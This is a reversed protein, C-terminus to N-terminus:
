MENTKEAGYLIRKRRFAAFPKLCELQLVTGLHFSFDQRNVIFHIFRSSNLKFKRSDKGILRPYIADASTVTNSDTLFQLLFNLKEPNM